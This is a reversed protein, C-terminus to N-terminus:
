DLVTTRHSALMCIVIMQHIRTYACYFMNVVNGRHLKEGFKWFYEILNKYATMMSQTHRPIGFRHMTPYENTTHQALTFM